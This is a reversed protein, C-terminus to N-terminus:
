LWWWKLEAQILGCIIKRHNTSQDIEYGLELPCNGSSCFGSAADAALSWTDLLFRQMGPPFSRPSLAPGPSCCHGLINIFTHNSLVGKWCFGPLVASSLVWMWDFEAAPVVSCGCFWPSAGAGGSATVGPIPFLLLINM